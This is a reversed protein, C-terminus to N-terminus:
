GKRPILLRIMGQEVEITPNKLLRIEGDLNGYIGENNTHLSVIHGKTIYALEPLSLHEGKQYVKALKLIETRKIDNILCIDLIGDNILAGPCPKYGGGYYRANTIVVFSFLEQQIKKDDIQIHFESSIPNKLSALMGMYYPIIGRVPLTKRYKNVYRAVNVDFGFSVTNIAYEGNVKLLDCNIIDGNKLLSFDLFDEKKLHDFYKVFDNGTGIPVIALTIHKCGAIGNVIEHLTGDGGCAFMLIEEETKFAYKRAIHTAHESSQTKEIIVDCGKFHTKIQDMLTYLGDKSSNPNIIFVYKM